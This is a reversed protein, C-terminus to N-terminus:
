LHNFLWVVDAFDIRGNGNYDFAAIPENAAIWAMQNFYLVVDRLGEARQRQRRRVARRREHGEPSRDPRCPKCPRIETVTVYGQRVTDSYGGGNSVRVAVGYTGPATYLHLPDQATSSATELRWVDNQFGGGSGGM